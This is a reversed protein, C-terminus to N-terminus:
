FKSVTKGVAYFIVSNAGMDFLAQIADEDINVTKTYLDDILLIDKNEVEPSITCTEKTIGPYPRAGDGGKGSRDMHTTRTNTHRIIYDTGDTFGTLNQIATRITTKFLLQNLAYYTPTKARPVVCVTLQTKNTQQLVSPLDLLLITNLQHRANELVSESKNRYQNKLTCIIHEVSDNTKERLTEDGPHYDDHFFGNCSRNLYQPVAQITFTKMETIKPNIHLIGSKRADAINKPDQEFVIISEPVINLTRITQQYKNQKEGNEQKGFIMDSFRDFLKHYKLVNTAREKDCNTVLVTRNTRSYKCLIDVLEKNLTTLDPQFLIQKLQIIHDLDSQTLSPYHQKFLERNFRKSPDYPIDLDTQTMMRFAAQYALFNAHNTKVLTDDLDFFLIHSPLIQM